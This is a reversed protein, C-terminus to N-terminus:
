WRHLQAAIDRLEREGYQRMPRNPLWAECLRQAFRNPLQESLVTRLEAAPRAQRQTRLFAEADADPLLDLRLADGPQWYSSIQLISPGSLGRHTLLMFNRFSQGNCSAEVPLSVGSLDQLRELHTGSLTLPVLGARTPLVAHGFQQALRYGFGSAGMSPISLGGSAVVLSEAHFTGRATRLAFGGEERARVDEIGCGIEIR